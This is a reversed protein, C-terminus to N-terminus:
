NGRGAVVSFAWVFNLQHVQHQRNKLRWAKSLCFDGIRDVIQNNFPLYINEGLNSFALDVSRGITEFHRVGKTGVVILRDQPGIQSQALKLVNVNYSGSLGLDSTIM